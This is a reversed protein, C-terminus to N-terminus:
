LVEAEQPTLDQQPVQQFRLGRSQGGERLDLLSDGMRVTDWSSLIREELGKRWFRSNDGCEIM